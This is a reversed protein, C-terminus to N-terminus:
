LIEIRPFSMKTQKFSEKLLGILEPQKDQYELLKEAFETYFPIWSFESM